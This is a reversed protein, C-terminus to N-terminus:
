GCGCDGGCGCGGHHLSQAMYHVVERPSPESCAELGIRLYLIAPLIHLGVAQRFPVFLNGWFPELEMTALKVETCDGVKMEALAIELPTVGASGAGYIFELSVASPTLSYTDPASGALLSLTIKKM